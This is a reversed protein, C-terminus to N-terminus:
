EKLCVHMCTKKSPSLLILWNLKSDQSNALILSLVTPSILDMKMNKPPNKMSEYNISLKSFFKEDCIRNPFALNEPFQLPNDDERWM